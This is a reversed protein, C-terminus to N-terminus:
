VNPSENEHQQYNKHAHPQLEDPVPQGSLTIDLMLVTSKLPKCAHCSSKHLKESEARLRAFLLCPFTECGVTDIMNLSLTAQKYKVLM